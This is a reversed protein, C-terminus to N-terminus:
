IPRATVLAVARDRLSRGRPWGTLSVCRNSIPESSITAVKTVGDDRYDVTPESRAEVFLAGRVDQALRAEDGRLPPGAEVSIREGVGGATRETM